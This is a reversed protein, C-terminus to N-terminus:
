AGSGPGAGRSSGLGPRCCWPSMTEPRLGVGPRYRKPMVQIVFVNVGLNMWLGQFTDQMATVISSKGSRPAGNLIVIQGPKTLREM